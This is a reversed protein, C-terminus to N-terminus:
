REPAKNRNIQVLHTGAAAGIIPALLNLLPITMLGAIAGGLMLREFSSVPSPADPDLRHRLWGMDTLERGLLVANVALFVVAPGIATFFLILAVPLALANFFLARGAGRLSNSLDEKFPLKRATAACDPYHCQEVAIVIEDAFFQLVALAVVRFLLWGGVLAVVIAVLAAVSNSYDDPLNAIIWGEILTDLVWWLLGGAVVFIALTIAVTKVLLRVVARDSLQGFALSLSKIVAGMQIAAKRRFARWTLAELSLGTKAQASCCALRGM